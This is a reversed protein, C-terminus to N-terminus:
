LGGKKDIGTEIGCVHVAVERETDHSGEECSGVSVAVNSLDNGTALLVSTTNRVTSGRVGDAPSSAVLVIAKNGRIGELRTVDEAVLVSPGDGVRDRNSCAINDSQLPVGPGHRVVTGDSLVESRDATVEGADVLSGESPGLDSLLTELGAAVGTVPSGVVEDTVAEGPLESNGSVELGAVVNESVLDDAKVRGILGVTSLGVGLANVELDSAAAGLGEATATVEGGEVSGGVGTNEEVEVLREVGVGDGARGNSRDLLSKLHYLCTTELGLGLKPGFLRAIPM